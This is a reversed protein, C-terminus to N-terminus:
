PVYYVVILQPASAAGANGSFLSLYNALGNGNDGLKFRLRIQTLGNATTAKNVYAKAPTLDISYWSDVLAPTFPGVTKPASAQFDNSALSSASGFFGKKIDVVFGQFTTIPNGGGTVSQKKLKLTIKTIVATDPLPATNFSLISRYQKKAADDGLRVTTATANKTGGATTNQGTELIYGDQAAVSKATFTKTVTYTEGSAFAAELPVGTANIITGDNKVDLRLTGDGTGTDVTVTYTKGSGSVTTISHGTIAGTKTLLFDAKGVGTVNESFTVTFQVSVRATPNPHVRKSSLVTPGLPDIIVTAGNYPGLKGNVDYMAVRWYYTLGDPYTETPTYRTNNTTVSDELTTFNSVLSVELKYRAAGNVPSWIFTPTGKQHSGNVPSILTAIPYQKVFTQTASYNSLKSSGDLMAVRWYYTGDDYGKIPTWSRQETDVTDFINSFAADKSVQVRYKWAALVPNGGNSVILPNWSLTPARSVATGNAPALGSPKPLTLTFTKTASWANTVSNNRHVRVRWYYTGQPLMVDDTYSTERTPVDIETTNFNVNTSVQLQYAEAGEVRDWSFTPTSFTVSTQLNQVKFGERKFSWGQSWAGVYMDNGIRYRPQVRWYYTNDGVLDEGWAHYTRAWYPTNTTLTYTAVQTTFTADTYAKSYSGSYPARIPWDWLFPLVSPIKSPDAGGATTPPMVLNIRESVNSFRSIETGNPANPDAPVSDQPQGTCPASACYPVSLLSVAYSGTTDQHGILTNPFKLEVYGNVNDFLLQGGVQDFLAPSNWSGAGWTYVYVKNVLFNGAEQKIYIAYEPQFAPITTISYGRPDSTAGSGNAHNVDLYLYYGVNKTPAIPVDFGFYWHNIDQAAYLATIDYDNDGLEGSPDSGIQLQNAAAGLTRTFQWQSQAAIQFRNTASWAGAPSVRVRWFYVGFNVNSLRRRALANVPAYAPNSVTASDALSTFAEDRSIEVDYSTAGTVPKWELLPTSEVLEFGNTPRLLIPPNGANTAALGLSPDFRARWVQSWVPNGGSTICNGGILPCVRWYYDTDLLPHPATFSHVPNLSPAASTNETDVTWVTNEFISDTAVELRYAEPYDDGENPDGSPILVRHWVFIPYPVTRDEHPNTAVTNNPAPYTDPPYYFLPYAQHPALSSASGYYSSTQSVQGKRDSGDYPTVRWFFQSTSGDYKEPSYFTNDTYGSDLLPPSFGIDHALEVFYRSAGPVPTWSFFPFRVHQYSNTPTLLIPTIIWKKQFTWPASWASQSSGSVAQVRWYYNVDNSLTNIPTHSTNRTDVAIIGSSFTQDTTYQLNYYQAGRVATWRFTPTFTPTANNLPELLTPVFNYGTTFSREASPTGNRNFPDLPVVRWYYSGNLLKSKPQHTTALTVESYALTAWGGPNTYIQIQYKAAGTVPSWSFAPADYFDVTAANAPAILNPANGSAWSKTFSRALSYNGIAPGEVRVRWFFETDAFDGADIPTYTLNPTTENVIIDTFGVNTSVQLRYMTAGAVANWRFEPIGLPPYNAVTTVLGEAPATLVPEGAARAPTVNLNLSTVLMAFILFLFGLKHSFKANM